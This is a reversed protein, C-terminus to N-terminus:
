SRKPYGQMKLTAVRAVEQVEELVGAVRDGLDDAVEMVKALTQKGPRPALLLGLPVGIALGILLGPLLQNSEHEREHQRM